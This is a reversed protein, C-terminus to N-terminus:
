QSIHQAMQQIIQTMSSLIASASQYYEQFIFLYRRVKEKQTDNLNEAATIASSLDNQLAGGAAAGTSGHSAYNDLVWQEVASFSQLNSPLENYVKKVTALLTNPDNAAGSPSQASLSAIETKLSTKLSTLAAVFSTYGSANPSSFVFFPNIPVGFYASAASNYARQYSTINANTVHTTFHSNAPPAVSKTLGLGVDQRVSIKNQKVGATVVITKNGGLPYLASPGFKYNFNFASKSKVSIDNHLNQLNQLINLVSQTTGLASELHQLASGLLQNGTGVYILEILAQETHAALQAPTVSPFTQVGGVQNSM